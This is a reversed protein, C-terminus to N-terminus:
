RMPRQMLPHASLANFRVWTRWDSPFISRTRRTNCGPTSKRPMPGPVVGAVLTALIDPCWLDNLRPPSESCKSRRADEPSGHHLFRGFSRWTNARYPSLSALLQVYDGRFSKLIFVSHHGIVVARRGPCSRIQQDSLPIGPDPSSEAGQAGAGEWGGHNDCVGGVPESVSRCDTPQCPSPPDPINRCSPSGPGRPIM